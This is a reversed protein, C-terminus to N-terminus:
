SVLQNYSTLTWPGDEYRGLVTRGAEQLVAEYRSAQSSIQADFEQAQQNFQSIFASEKLNIFEEFAESRDQQSSNFIENIGKWTPMMKGTRSEVELTDSNLIQDQVRNNDWVDPMASSPVPNGTNYQTM